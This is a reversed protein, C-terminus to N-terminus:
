KSYLGQIIIDIILTNVKLKKLRNTLSQIEKEYLEDPSIGPFRVTQIGKNLSLIAKKFKTLLRECEDVTLLEYGPETIRKRKILLDKFEAYKAYYYIKEDLLSGIDPCRFSIKEDLEAIEFQYDVSREFFIKLSDPIQKFDIDSIPRFGGYKKKYSLKFIFPNARLNSPNPELVSIDFNLTSSIPMTLFWKILYAIHGALNKINLENYEIDKSPMILLDIDESEYISSIERLVLQIAKGGKFVLQYDQEKMKQSIIGFVLLATCLLINFQTFDIPQDFFIPGFEGYPKQIKNETPVFYTPIITQIIKCISWIDTITNERLPISSDQNMMYHIKERLTFMNNEGFIQKWFDPELELNYGTQSPLETPINLKIIPIETVISEQVEQIYPQRIMNNFLETQHENLTNPDAGYDLLFQILEKDQLKVADSLATVNGKSSKLNINGKNQIFFTILKKRINNDSINEFIIVLCPFTAVNVDPYETHSYTYKDLPKFDTISALILNNIGIQNSNFGNSFSILAKDILKTDKQEIADMLKKLNKMFMNRFPLVGARGSFPLVVGLSQRQAQGSGGFFINNRKRKTKSKNKKLRKNIKKTTKM